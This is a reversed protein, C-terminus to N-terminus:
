RWKQFLAYRYGRAGGHWWGIYGRDLLRKLAKSASAYNAPTRERGLAVLVDGTSALREALSIRKKWVEYEVWMSPPAENKWEKYELWTCDAKIVAKQQEKAIIDEVSAFQKLAGIIERQFKSLGRGM